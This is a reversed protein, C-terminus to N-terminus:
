RTDQAQEPASSPSTAQSNAADVYDVDGPLTVRNVENHEQLEHFSKAPGHNVKRNSGDTRNRQCHMCECDPQGYNAPLLCADVKTNDFEDLISPHLMESTVGSENPTADVAQTIGQQRQRHRRSAERNAQKQREKDKYAM